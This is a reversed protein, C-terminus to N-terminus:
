IRVGRHVAVVGGSLNFYEVRAFGAARMMAGLADQDPFM